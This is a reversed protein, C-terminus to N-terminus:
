EYIKKRKLVSCMIQMKKAVQKVQFFNEIIKSKRKEFIERAQELDDSQLLVILDNLDAENLKDLNQLLFNNVPANKNKLQAVIKQKKTETKM